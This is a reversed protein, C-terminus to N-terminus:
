PARDIREIESWAREAAEADAATASPPHYRAREYADTLRAIPAAAAPLMAEATPQYERPTQPPTRPRQHAEGALLLRIYSRRIRSLPDAGRLRALAARLGEDQGSSRRLRALLDRLDSALGNWSWLSEREEGHDGVPRARRRLLVILAALILIPLLALFVQVLMKLWPPLFHLTELAQQQQQQQFQQRLTLQRAFGEFDILEFLWRLAAELILLLPLFILAMGIVLVGLAARLIQATTEGFRSALLLGPMLVLGIAGLLTLFGRRGLRRLRTDYQEALSALAIVLLGVAFFALVMMTALATPASGSSGQWLLGLGVILMLALAARTFLKRLSTSDHDALQLGRWFAFLAAVFLLYAPWARPAGPAFLTSLALGWGALLGWGAGAYGKVAWLATLAAALLRAPRQQEPPLWRQAIWDALAGALVVLCLLGWAGRAGAFLLLLAAPTAEVVALGLFYITRQWSIM